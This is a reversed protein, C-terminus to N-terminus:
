CNSGIPEICEWDLVSWGLPCFDVCTDQEVSFPGSKTVMSFPKLRGCENVCDRSVPDYIAGQNCEICQYGWWDFDWSCSECYGGEYNCPQCTPNEDEDLIEHDWYGACETCEWSSHDEGVRMPSLAGQCEFYSLCVSTPISKTDHRIYYDEECSLCIEYNV